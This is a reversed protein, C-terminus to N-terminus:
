GNANGYPAFHRPPVFYRGLLFGMFMHASLRWVCVKENESQPHYKSGHDVFWFYVSILDNQEAKNIWGLRAIRRRRSFQDSSFDIVWHKRLGASGRPNEEDSLLRNSESRMGFALGPARFVKWIDYLVM